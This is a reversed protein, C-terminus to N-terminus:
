WGQCISGGVWGGGWCSYGCGDCSAVALVLMIAPLCSADHGCYAFEGIGPFHCWHVAMFSLKLPRQVIRHQSEVMVLM